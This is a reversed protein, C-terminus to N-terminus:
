NLRLLLLCRLTFHKFYKCLYTVVHKDWKSESKSKIYKDFSKKKPLVDSYVKYLERSKLQGNTYQQIENVFEIYDLNMSLFRNVMYMDFSKRDVESLSEWKDKKYTIGGLHDFLSKAKVVIEDSKKMMKLFNAHLSSQICQEVIM